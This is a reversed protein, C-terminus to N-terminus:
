QYGLKNGEKGKKKKKIYYIYKRSKNKTKKQHFEPNDSIDRARCISGTTLKKEKLVRLAHMCSYCLMIRLCIYIYMNGDTLKMLENDFQM